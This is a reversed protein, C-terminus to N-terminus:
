GVYGASHLLAAAGTRRAELAGTLRRAAAPHLLAAARAPTFWGHDAIEEAQLRVAAGAPVTGGDFMFQVAPHAHEGQDPIADRWEVVLLRLRGAALGTEERLERAACQAPAEGPDMGGGPFQWQDRYSAKLLLVKGSEDTLLVSCGVYARVMRALWEEESLTWTDTM